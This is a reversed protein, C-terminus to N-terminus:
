KKAYKPLNVFKPQRVYNLFPRLIKNLTDEKILRFEDCILVGARYGRANDTSTVAQITSGNHLIVVCENNGTKIAKIERAINPYKLRLEKDIKQTIILQGQGRTGSAIIVPLGPRLSAIALAYLAVLFSKGIGRAAIMMFFNNKGMMYLMIKQFLHLDVQFYDTIYRHINAKYFSAWLKVGKRLKEDKSLNEVQKDVNAKKNYIDLGDKSHKNRDVQYNKYGAM